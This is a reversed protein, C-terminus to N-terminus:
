FLSKIYGKPMVTDWSSDGIIKPVPIYCWCKLLFSNHSFHLWEGIEFDFYGLGVATYKENYVIVTTSFTADSEDPVPRQSMPYFIVEDM